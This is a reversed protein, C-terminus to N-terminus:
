KEDKRRHLRLSLQGGRGGWRGVWVEGERWGASCSARTSRAGCCTSGRRLGLLGGSRQRQHRALGGDKGRPRDAEARSEEGMIRTGAPVSATLEALAGGGDESRAGERGGGAEERRREGRGEEAGLSGRGSGGGVGGGWEGAAARAGPRCALGEGVGPSGSIWNGEGM